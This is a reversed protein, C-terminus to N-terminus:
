RDGRRSIPAPNPREDDEEIKALIRRQLEEVTKSRRVLNAMHPAWRGMETSSSLGMQKAWRLTFAVVFAMGIIVLVLVGVVGLNTEVDHAVGVAQGAVGVATSSGENM